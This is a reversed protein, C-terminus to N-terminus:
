NESSPMRDVLALLSDGVAGLSFAISEATFFWARGRQDDTNETNQEQVPLGLQFIQDRSLLRNLFRGALTNLLEAAIDLLQLQEIVEEPCRFLVAAVKRLLANPARLSLEGQAPGLIPLIVCLPQDDPCLLDSGTSPLAEMFAMNEFTETVAGALARAFDERIIVM